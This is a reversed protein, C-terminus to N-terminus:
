NIYRCMLQGRKKFIRVIIKDYTRQRRQICKLTIPSPSENLNYEFYEDYINIEHPKKDFYILSLEYDDKKISSKIKKHQEAFRTRKNRISPLNKLPFLVNNIDGNEFRTSFLFIPAYVENERIGENQILIRKRDAHSTLTFFSSVVLGWVIFRM